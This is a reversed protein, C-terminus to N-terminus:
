TQVVMIYLYIYIRINALEACPLFRKLYGFYIGSTEVPKRGGYQHALTTCWCPTEM